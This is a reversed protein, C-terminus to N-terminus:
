RRWGGLRAARAIGGSIPLRPILTAQVAHYSDPKGVWVTESVRGQTDIGHHWSGYETDRLRQNIFSWWESELRAYGLGGTVRALVSAACVAEAAVWHMTEAVVPTGTWDTTYVFGPRGFRHWGDETARDFLLVATALLWAPASGVRDLMVSPQVLLRSWEFGHGVTAGYPKFPDAPHERNLASHV